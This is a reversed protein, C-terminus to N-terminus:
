ALGAVPAYFEINIDIDVGAASRQAAWATLTRAACQM